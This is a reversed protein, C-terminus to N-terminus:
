ASTAEQDSDSHTEDDSHRGKMHTTLYLILTLAACSLGFLMVYSSTSQLPVLLLLLFLIGNAINALIAFREPPFRDLYVGWIPAAIM